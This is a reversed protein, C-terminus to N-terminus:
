CAQPLDQPSPPLPPEGAPFLPSDSRSAPFGEAEVWMCIVGEKGRDGLDRSSNDGDYHCGGDGRRQGVTVAHAAAIYRRAGAQQVRRQPLRAQPRSRHLASSPPLPSYYSYHHTTSSLHCRIIHPPMPHSHSRVEMGHMGVEGGEWMMWVQLYRSHSHGGMGHLCVIIPTEETMSGSPSEMWDLAVQPSPCSHLLSHTFTTIHSSFSLSLLLPGGDMGICGSPLSPLPLSSSLTFPSIHPPCDSHTHARGSASLRFCGAM